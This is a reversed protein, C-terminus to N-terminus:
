KLYVGEHELLKAKIDPGGSYGGLGNAAVVRHCPIIIPIPNSRNAGGVARAAGPNGLAAAIEGYTRTKGYPIARVKQLVKGYFGKVHLDLKVTFKRLRGNFYAKIQRAAEKNVAGGNRIIADPFWKKIFNEIGGDSQRSLGIYCLGKESSLLRLKGVPSNIEYSFIVKKVDPWIADHM